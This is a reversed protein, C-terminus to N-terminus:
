STPINNKCYILQQTKYTHCSQKAFKIKEEDSMNKTKETIMIDRIINIGLNKKNFVRCLVRNVWQTYSNSKLYPGGSKQVFLYERSNIKLQDKIIKTLEKPLKLPEYFHKDTNKFEYLFLVMDNGDTIIYNSSKKIEDPPFTNNYIKVNNYDQRIPPIYSFMCLLLYEQSYPETKGLYDRKEIFEKYSVAAEVKKENLKHTENIKIVEIGTTMLMDRYKVVAKKMLNSQKEPPYNDSIWRLIAKINHNITSINYFEGEKTNKYHKYSKLLEYTKDPNMSIWKMPQKIIENTLKNYNAEYIKKSSETLIKHEKDDKQIFKETNNKIADQIINDLNINNITKGMKTM